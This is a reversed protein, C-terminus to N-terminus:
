LASPQTAWRRHCHACIYHHESIAAVRAHTGIARLECLPTFPTGDQSEVSARIARSCNILRRTRAMAAERREPLDSDDHRSRPIALPTRPTM